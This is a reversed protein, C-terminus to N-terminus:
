VRVGADPVPEERGGLWRALFPYARVGNWRHPGEFVDHEVRDGAGLAEYVTRLDAMAQRAPGVPFINDATGTEVLLPRPAVLAGLDVHDVSLTIGNLVQSGCMNWGITACTEWRNFYGSVV